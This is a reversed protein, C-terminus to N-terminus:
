KSRGVDLNKIDIEKKHSQKNSGLTKKSKARCYTPSHLFHNAAFGVIAINHSNHHNHEIPIHQEIARKHTEVLNGYPLHRILRSFQGFCEVSIAYHLKGIGMYACIDTSSLM